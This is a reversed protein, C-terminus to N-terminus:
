GASGINFYGFVIDLPSRGAPPPDDPPGLIPGPALDKSTLTGLVAGEPVPYTTLSTFSHPDATWSLSPGDPPAVGLGVKVDEVNGKYGGPGIYIGEVGLFALFHLPDANPEYFIVNLSSEEASSTLFVGTLVQVPNEAGIRYYFAAHGAEKPEKGELLRDLQQQLM